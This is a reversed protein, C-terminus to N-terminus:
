PFNPDAVGGFTKRKKKRKKRKGKDEETCPPDDAFNATAEGNPGFTASRGKRKKRKRKGMEYQVPLTTTSIFNPATFNHPRSKVSIENGKRKEKKEKRKEYQLEAHSAAGVLNGMPAEATAPSSQFDRKEKKKKKKKEKERGRKSLVGNFEGQRQGFSGCSLHARPRRKKKKKRRGGGALTESLFFVPNSRRHEPPRM